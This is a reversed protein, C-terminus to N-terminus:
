GNKKGIQHINSCQIDSTYSNELFILTFTYFLLFKIEFISDLRISIKSYTRMFMQRVLYVVQKTFTCLKKTVFFLVSTVKLEVIGPLAILTDTYLKFLKM